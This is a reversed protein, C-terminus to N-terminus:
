NTGLIILFNINPTVLYKLANPLSEADARLVNKLENLRNTESGVTYIITKTYNQTSANGISIIQYDLKELQGKIQQALGTIKTGNLIIIQPKAGAPSTENNTINTIPSENINENNTQGQTPLSAANNKFANKIPEALLNFNGDKPRLVYAGTSIIESYLPGTPEEEFTYNKIKNETFSTM